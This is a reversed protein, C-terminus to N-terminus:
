AENADQAQASKDLLEQHPYISLYTMENRLSLVCVSMDRKGGSRSSGMRLVNSPANEAGNGQTLNLSM